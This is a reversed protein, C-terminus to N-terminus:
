FSLLINHSRPNHGELSIKELVLSFKAWSSKNREEQEHTTRQRTKTLFIREQVHLFFGRADEIRQGDVCSPQLWDKMTSPCFILVSAEKGEHM